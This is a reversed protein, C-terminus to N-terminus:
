RGGNYNFEYHIIPALNLAAKEQADTLLKENDLTNDKRNLNKLTKSTEIYQLQMCIKKILM